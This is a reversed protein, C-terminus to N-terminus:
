KFKRRIQSQWSETLIPHEKMKPPPGMQRALAMQEKLSLNQLWPNRLPSASATSTNSADSMTNHRTGILPQTGILPRHSHLSYNATDLEPKPKPKQKATQQKTFSTEDHMPLDLDSEMLSMHIARDINQMENQNAQYAQNRFNPASSRSESTSQNAYPTATYGEAASSSSTSKSIHRSSQNLSQQTQQQTQKTELVVARAYDLMTRYAIPHCQQCRVHREYESDQAGIPVVSALQMEWEQFTAGHLHQHDSVSEDNSIAIQAVHAIEHAMAALMEFDNHIYTRSLVIKEVSLPHLTYVTTSPTRLQSSWELEIESPLTNDFCHENLYDYIERMDSEKYRLNTPTTAAATAATETTTKAHSAANQSMM